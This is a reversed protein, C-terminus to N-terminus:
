AAERAPSITKSNNQYSDISLQEADHTLAFPNVINAKATLKPYYSPNYDSSIIKKNFLVFGKRNVTVVSAEVNINIQVAFSKNTSSSDILFTISSSKISNYGNKELLNKLRNKENSIMALNFLEGSKLLCKDQDKFVIDKVKSDPISYSLASLTFTEVSSIKVENQNSQIEKSNRFALLLFVIVPILLMFKFLHFRSTKTKNMMIIRNKLSSFKLNSTISSAVDGTVKLLLYQYNKRNIGKQIVADDAIFELNERVAKKILWAFPNFWNIICIIEAVLVDLTHKQGVHVQEHNVIEQLEKESYNDKNIYINNLFSFPLIPESLHYIKVEGDVILTAKSKIKRISLLQILLRLFLVSFILLYVASLIQWYNIDDGGKIANGMIPNSYLSPIQDILSIAKFQQAEIIVNVDIFPVLFSLISFTLLFYRNWVYYTIRKLLLTYFLFVVGLCFSAKLMFEFYLPM